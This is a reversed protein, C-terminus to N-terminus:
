ALPGTAATRLEHGHLAGAERLLEIGRQHRSMLWRHFVLGRADFEADSPLPYEPLSRGVYEEPLKDIQIFAADDSAWDLATDTGDVLLNPNAGYRLLLGMAQLLACQSAFHLLYAPDGSPGDTSQNPDAGADLLTRLIGLWREGGMETFRAAAGELWGLMSIGKFYANPDAGAALADRVGQLDQKLTADALAQNAPTQVDM